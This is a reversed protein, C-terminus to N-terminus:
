SCSSSLPQYAPGYSAVCTITGFGPLETPGSVMSAGIDIASSSAGNNRASATNGSISSADATIGSASATVLGRSVSGTARITSGRIVVSSGNDFALVGTATAPASSATATVVDNLLTATNGSGNAIAAIQDTGSTAHVTSDRMVFSGAGGIFVADDGGSSSITTDYVSAARIVTLARSAAGHGDIELDRIENDGNTGVATDANTATVTTVGPGAGALEVNEPLFVGTDGLDYTGPGLQVLYPTKPGSDHISTVASILDNGNQAPTGAPDVYKTRTNAIDAESISHNLIEGSGVAGVGVDSKHVAGNRIQKTGVSNKALQTAAYASGGLAIFIAILGYANSRLHGVLREM